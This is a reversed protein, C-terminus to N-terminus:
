MTCEVNIQMENTAVVKDFPGTAVALTRSVIEFEGRRKGEHRYKTAYPKQNLVTLLIKFPEEM